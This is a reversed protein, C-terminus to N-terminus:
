RTAGLHVEWSFPRPMIRRVNHFCSGCVRNVIDEGRSRNLSALIRGHPNVHNSERSRVQYTAPVRARQYSGVRCCVASM